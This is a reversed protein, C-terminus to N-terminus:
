HEDKTQVSKKQNQRKAQGEEPGLVGGERREVKLSGAQKDEKIEDSFEHGAFCFTGLVYEVRNNEGRNSKQDDSGGASDM